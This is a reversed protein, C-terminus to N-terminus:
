LDRALLRVVTARVEPQEYFGRKLKGLVEGLRDATLEGSPVPEANSLEPIERATASIEVRDAAEDKGSSDAAGSRKASDSASGESVRNNWSPRGSSTPQIAM